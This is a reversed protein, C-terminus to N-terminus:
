AVLGRDEAGLRDATEPGTGVHGHHSPEAYFDEIFAVIRRSSQSRFRYGLFRGIDLRDCVQMCFETRTEPVKWWPNGKHLLPPEVSMRIMQLDAEALIAINAFGRHLKMPKGRVTRTGEPFVILNNGAKLTNVCAQLLAEPELDNRIYGAGEVTLRFFPNKWLGGKVVCQINPIAAMIMVVDLLSPHNAIVMAGRLGKLRERGEMRVDAVKLVRISGCYLQFSRHLVRQIRRRCKERDRTVLAILPFVTMALFSGGVGIIALFLGTGFARWLREPRPWM